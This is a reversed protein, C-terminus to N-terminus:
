AGTQEATRLNEAFRFTYVSLWITGGVMILLAVIDTLAFQSQLFMRQTSIAPLLLMLLIEVGRFVLAWKCIQWFRESHGLYKKWVIVAFIMLALFWAHLNERLM